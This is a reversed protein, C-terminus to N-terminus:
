STKKLSEKIYQCTKEEGCEALMELYSLLLARSKPHMMDGDKSQMFYNLPSAQTYKEKQYVKCAAVRDCFSEAVYKEPMQIPQWTRGITDWWYEWHHKNRGKHHLWGLSYGFLEKEKTYPSRNGQFYTISPILESFSYKSIDHVIGQYYLGCKFCLSRVLRRHRHVTKLHLYLKKIFSYESPNM